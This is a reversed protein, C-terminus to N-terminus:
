LHMCCRAQSFITPYSTIRQKLRWPSWCFIVFCFVKHDKIAAPAITKVWCDFLFVITGCVLCLLPSEPLPLSQPLFTIHYWWKPFTQTPLPFFILTFCHNVQSNIKQGTWLNHQNNPRELVRSDKEALPTCPLWSWLQCCCHCCCSPSSSSIVMGGLMTMTSTTGRGVDGGLRQGRQEVIIVVRGRRLCEKYNNGPGGRQTMSWPM